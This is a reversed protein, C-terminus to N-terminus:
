RWRDVPRNLVESLVIAQRVGGPSSLMKMLDDALTTRALEVRLEEAKAREAALTGVHHEFRQQMRAEFREDAQRIDAGLEEAREALRTRTSASSALGQNTGGFNPREGRPSMGARQDAGKAKARVPKKERPPRAAEVPRSPRSEFQIGDDIVEIRPPRKAQQPARPAGQERGGRRLFEDVEMRIAEQPAQPPRGADRPLPRPPAKKQARNADIFLRAIGGVLIVFLIIARVVDGLDFALPPILFEM